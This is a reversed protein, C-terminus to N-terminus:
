PTLRANRARRGKNWTAEKRRPGDGRACLSVFFGTESGLESSSLGSLATRGVSLRGGRLPSLLLSATIHSKNGQAGLELGRGRM